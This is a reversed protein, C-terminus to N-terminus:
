VSGQKFKQHRLFREWVLLTTKLDSTLAYTETRTRRNEIGIIGESYKEKNISLLTHELSLNRFHKM